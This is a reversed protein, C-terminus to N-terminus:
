INSHRGMIEIVLQKYSVDGVENITRCQITVVRELGHQSISEIVSGDLYKRLLMCFMAPEKPNKYSEKTLQMRTFASHASLLLRYNSGQKRIQLVLETPQPQHIKGIRGGLLQQLEKTVARLVIGDFSMDSVEM